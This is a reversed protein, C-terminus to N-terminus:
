YQSFFIFDLLSSNKDKTPTWWKTDDIFDIQNYASSQQIYTVDFNASPINGPLITTLFVSIEPNQVISSDNEPTYKVSNVIADKLDKATSLIEERKSIDGTILDINKEIQVCFDYISIFKDSPLTISMYSKTDRLLIKRMLSLESSGKITNVLLGSLRNFSDQMLEVGDVAILSINKHLLFSDLLDISDSQYNFYQSFISKYDLGDINRMDVSALVNQTVNRLEWITEMNCSFASDFCILDLNKISTNEFSNQISNKLEVLPMTEKASDDVFMTKFGGSHGWLMLAYKKAPYNIFCFDLFKTLNKGDTMNLKTSIEKKLSLTDSECENSVLISNEGDIDKSVEYLRTGVWNGNTEDHGESRDILCLTSINKDDFNFTELVNLDNLADSELNNDAAMYYMITWEREKATHKYSKAVSEKFCFDQIFSCSTLCLAFLIIISKQKM